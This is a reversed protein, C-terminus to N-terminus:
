SRVHQLNFTGAGAVITNINSKEEQPMHNVSNLQAHMGETKTEAVAEM